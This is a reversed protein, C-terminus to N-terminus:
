NFLLRDKALCVMQHSDSDCSISKASNKGGKQLRFAEHRRKERQRKRRVKRAQARTKRVLLYAALEATAWQAADDHERFGRRIREVTTGKSTRRRIVEAV